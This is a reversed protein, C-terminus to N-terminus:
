KKTVLVPLLQTGSYRMPDFLLLVLWPLRNGSM